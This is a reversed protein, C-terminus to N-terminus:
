APVRAAAVRAARRRANWVVLLVAVGAGFCLFFGLIPELIPRFLSGRMFALVVKPEADEDYACSVTHLGARPTVLEFISEGKFSGFSYSQSGTPHELKVEQESADVVACGLDSLQDAVYLKGNVRSRSEFFITHEGAELQVQAEGPVVVRALGDVQKSMGTIGSVCSGIGAALLLAGLVYFLRSPGTVQNTTMKM